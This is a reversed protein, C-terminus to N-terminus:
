CNNFIICCVSCFTMLKALWKTIFWFLSFLSHSYNLLWIFLTHTKKKEPLIFPGSMLVDFLHNCNQEAPLTATGYVSAKDESCCGWTQTGVQTGKSCTVGRERVRNWTMRLQEIFLAMYLGFTAWINWDRINGTHGDTVSAIGDFFLKETLTMLIDTM